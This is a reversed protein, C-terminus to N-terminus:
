FQNSKQTKGAINNLGLVIQETEERTADPTFQLIGNSIRRSVYPAALWRVEKFKPGFRCLIAIRKGPNTATAQELIWTGHQDFQIQLAFGGMVEVLKAGAVDGETLFPSKEVNVMIPKERFIPVPSSLDTMYPNTEMHLSVSSVVKKDLDGSSFMRCGCFCVAIFLMMAQLYTNFRCRVILM